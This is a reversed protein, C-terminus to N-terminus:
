YVIFSLLLLSKSIGELRKLDQATTLYIVRILYFVVGMIVTPIIMWPNVLIVMALIGFMVLFIQIAEIMARPLLEDIAGM